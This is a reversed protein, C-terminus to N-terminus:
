FYLTYKSVKIVADTIGCCCSVVSQFYHRRCLVVDGIPGMSHIIHSVLTIQYTYTTGDVSAKSLGSKSATAYILLRKGVSCDNALM